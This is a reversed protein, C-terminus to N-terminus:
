DKFDKFSAFQKAQYDKAWEKLKTAQEDTAKIDALVTKSNVLGAPGGGGFGMGGQRQQAVALGVMGAALLFATAYRAYKRMVFAERFPASPVSGPRLPVGGPGVPMM